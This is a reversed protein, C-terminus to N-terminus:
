QNEICVSINNDRLTEATPDETQEVSLDRIYLPSKSEEILRYPVKTVLERLGILGVLISKSVPVPYGNRDSDRSNLSCRISM